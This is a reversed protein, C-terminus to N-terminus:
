AVEVILRNFREFAEAHFALFLHDDRLAPDARMALMLARHLRWAEILRDQGPPLTAQKM